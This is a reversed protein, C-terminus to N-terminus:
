SGLTRPMVVYRKHAFVRYAVAQGFAVVSQSTETKIEAAVLELPFKYIQDALPKYVGVVDPTGWKTKIGAGGLEVAETVEDLDDRLWAAFSEYFDQERPAQDVPPPQDGQGEGQQDALSALQYIGRSPKIVEKPFEVSLKSVSTYITNENTDPNAKA